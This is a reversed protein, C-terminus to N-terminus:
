ACLPLVDALAAVQFRAARRVDDTKPEFVVSKGVASLLCIDNDHDGVALVSEATVGLRERLHLLVNLKCHPHRTCGDPHSMAAAYTMQGTCRGKNFRLTAAISFDAFVRRRVTESALFYSDTVIGVRYGAKRLGVVLDVAGEHLPLDRAVQVFVDRPVGTFLAVIKGAREDPALDRNDLLPALRDLAGTRRALEVVYRGKVLVGDMDLLALREAQGLRPVIFSLETQMRRDIEAVEELQGPALRKYKAARQLISRVVQAAMDGLRELPHSNHELSGIDVEVARAGSMCVDILLAVDVGYDNEFHVKHLLSVKAAVVGGLPQEFRILEPFFVRLLPRGVLTTVRGSARAFRAKVFDAADSLLPATMDDVLTERLGHMDGDLYLIIENVALKLGEEMSIGKGMLASTIVTAGAAKAIEPTGDISGDDIVLIQSVKSNRRVFEVVSAINASENLTPIVVTIM